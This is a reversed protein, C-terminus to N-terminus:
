AGVDLHWAYIQAATFMGRFMLRQRRIPAWGKAGSFKDFITSATVPTRTVSVLFDFPQVDRLM